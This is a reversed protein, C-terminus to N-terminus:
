HLHHHPYPTALAEDTIPPSPLWAIGSGDGRQRWGEKGGEKRGDGGVSSPLPFAPSSLSLTAAPSVTSFSALFETENCWWLGQYTCGSWFEHIWGAERERPDTLFLPSTPKNAIVWWISGPNLHNHPHSPHSPSPSIASIFLSILLPSSPARQLRQGAHKTMTRTIELSRPQQSSKRLAANIHVCNPSPSEAQRQTQKRRDREIGGVRVTEMERESLM